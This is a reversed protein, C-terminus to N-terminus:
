IAEETMAQAQEPWKERIGQLSNELRSIVDAIQKPKKV